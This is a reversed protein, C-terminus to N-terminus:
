EYLEKYDKTAQRNQYLIELHEPRVTAYEIGSKMAVIIEEKTRFSAAILKTKSEPFLLKHQLAENLFQKNENKHCYVMSYHFNNELAFNLQALDYVTTSCVNYIKIMEKVLNYGTDNMSIKWVVDFKFSNEFLKPYETPPNSTTQIFVKFNESLKAHIQRDAFASLWENSSMKEEKLHLPNTTVGEIFSAWKEIEDINATDLFFKM